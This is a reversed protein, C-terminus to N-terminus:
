LVVPCYRKLYERVEPNVAYILTGRIGRSCLVAYTRLISDRVEEFDTGAKGKKDWYNSLDVDIRQTQPNIVVEPGILVGVYNLDYGQITHICGVEDLAHESNVWDSQVSNWIFRHGDLEFDFLEPDTHISKEKRTIWDWGYGAVMRCLGWVQNLSVIEAQLHAASEYISFTYEDSFSLRTEPPCDSFIKKVYNLYDEGGRCRMQSSLSFIYTASHLWKRFAEEPADSPMVHQAVDYLFVQFRSCKLIWDLQSAKYKDLGLRRCTDDFAKYGTINKRQRLRHAEDVILLDWKEKAADQPSVVKVSAMKLERFVNKLTKQMSTVPIVLGIKFGPSLKAAEELLTEDETLWSFRDSLSLIDEKSYHALESFAKVLYVALVTKGTGASGKVFIPDSPVEFQQYTTLGAQEANKKLIISIVDMCVRYQDVTLTKYPSFKFLNSNQIEELSKRAMQHDILDQWIQNFRTQYAARQYYNHAQSQGANRNQLEYRGDTTMYLILTSELDLIVSKNFSSDYVITSTTLRTRECNKLHESMRQSANSTEGIYAEKESNLIYVVPWNVGFSQDELVTPLKSDFPFDILQAREGSIDSSTM